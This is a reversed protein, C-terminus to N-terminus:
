WSGGAAFARHLDRRAVLNTEEAWLDVPSLDDTLVPGWTPQPEFRNDWSHNRHVVRWHEYIDALADVPDGLVALPLDLPRESALLILNGIQDPPESIPLVVVNPFEARLTAAVSRILPSKWGVSEVNLMLIGGPSLRTRALAFAERTMLHFPISGSGFADMFVVDWATEASALFRRGDEHYVRGHREQLDFYQRAVDTVVSDIEVADVEWGQRAFQKATSGGGLGVLLLRSPEPFFETALEAVVVYALWPARSLSDVQTHVGGDILLSRRGARDLVRLEAYASHGVHVLGPAAAEATRTALWGAVTALAVASWTLLSRLGRPSSAAAIAAALLLWGGVGLTLRTVGISPILWFGTALAGAVSAVTSVAFLDGSTRGAEGVNQLRLRIAFPSVMGLLTLPPGFLVTATVLVAARLGLGETAALLPGRAWPVILMWLGAALLIAALVTTQPRRDAWRGGIAYGVSLAALTVAILASWLYLSVGYFPGLIRTGLIEIVLVASGSLAVVLLLM